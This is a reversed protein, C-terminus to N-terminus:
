SSAPLQSLLNGNTPIYQQDPNSKIMGLILIGVLLGEVANMKNNVAGM